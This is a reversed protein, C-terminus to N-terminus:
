NEIGLVLVKLYEQTLGHAGNQSDPILILTKNGNPLTPGFCMGEYNAMNASSTSFSKLLTKELVESSDASPRVVYLKMKSFSSLMKKIVSGKPVYVERELVIIRGDDMAAMASVGHVYSSANAIKEASKTGSDMQYLYRKRPQLDNGFSQLRLLGPTAADAILESETTTWFLGTVANYALAEFGRNSTIKDAAMDSPVALMRGTPVGELTYERISQDSEASVFLTETSPVYAVGENDMHKVESSATGAPVSNSVEKVIGKDSIHIDFLLVGGGNLHDHVVAYRSGGVHTIGSYEGSGVESTIVRAQREKVVVIRPVSVSDQVEASEERKQGFAVVSVCFLILFLIKGMKLQRNDLIISNKQRM